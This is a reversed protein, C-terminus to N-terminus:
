EASNNMEADVIGDDVEVAQLMWAGMAAIMLVVLIIAIPKTRIM